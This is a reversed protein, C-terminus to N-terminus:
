KRLSPYDLLRRLHYFITEVFTANQFIVWFKEDNKRGYPARTPPAVPPPTASILSIYFFLSYGLPVYINSYFKFFFMSAM